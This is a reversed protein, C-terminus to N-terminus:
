IKWPKYKKTYTSKGSNHDRIRQDLDKTFGVYTKEAILSKLIYVYYM